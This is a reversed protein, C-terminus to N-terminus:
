HLPLGSVEGNLRIADINLQACRNILEGVGAQLRAFAEDVGNPLLEASGDQDPEAQASRPLASPCEPFHIRVGGAAARLKDIVAQNKDHESESQIIQETYHKAIFTNQAQQEIVAKQSEALDEVHQVHKGYSFIGYLVGLVAALSVLWLMLKAQMGM